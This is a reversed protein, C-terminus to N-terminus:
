YNEESAKKRVEKESNKEFRCAGELVTRAGDALEDSASIIGAGSVAGANSGTM